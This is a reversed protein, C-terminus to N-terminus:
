TPGGLNDLLAKSHKIKRQCWEVSILGIAAPSRRRDAPKHGHSIPFSFLFLQESLTESDFFACISKTLQTM